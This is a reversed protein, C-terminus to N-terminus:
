RIQVTRSTGKLCKYITGATGETVQPAVAYFKAPIEVSTYLKSKNVKWFGSANTKTTMVTGYGNAKILVKREAYCNANSARVKGQSAVDAMWVNSSLSIVQGAEAALTVTRSTAKLCKYIPGATGQSVQSVVAHIKAPQNVKGRLVSRNVKWFGSANTKTTMVTGYGKAKILVKRDEVCNANSARVKGQSASNALWLKSTVKVVQGPGAEASALAPVALAVLAVAAVAVAVLRNRKRM